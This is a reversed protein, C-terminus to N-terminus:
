IKLPEPLAKLWGLKVFFKDMMLVTSVFAGNDKKGYNFFGHGENEYASLICTNGAKKMKMTFAEASKFPVTKDQTGHFIIAPAIGPTIHHYPSMDKSKAGLRVELNELKEKEEPTGDETPALILAPNFLALANPTSSIKLNEGPEDFKTLTATAAALHGGASGGGAAIRNPDVGLEGAHERIWRVASKADTVCTNAKVDNRSAVRYDAVIAVMGRASLYECHEVFQQPSGANWGGGFFFVIAPSQADSSHSSPNFIWLQLDINNTSKYVVVKDSSIDPPYNRQCFLQTTILIMILASYVVKKSPHLIITKM